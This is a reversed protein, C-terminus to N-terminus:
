SPRWKSSRGFPGLDRGARQVEQQLYNLAYARLIDSAHEPENVVGPLLGSKLARELDFSGGIERSTLPFMSRNFVRGALRNTDMRKLKRASSGSLAFKYRNEHRSILDHVQDLLITLRQVEDAM